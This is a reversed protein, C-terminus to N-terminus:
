SLVLGIDLLNTHTPGTMVLGGFKKFFSNSDNNKLYSIIVDDDVKHDFIAGAHKTNGDIGDTGVSGVVCDQKLKSVMNLVLEQNRGGKGNGHVVVTTEGGFVLCSKKGTKHKRLIKAAALGVDGEVRQCISTSYGLSKAKKVMVGLCDSNTAIIQNPIKPRKPTEDIKGQAGNQLLRLASKPIKKGLGYKSLIKLCDSFTSKDYYTIGSGISGLDNSVVDSMVYSIADCRLHDLIKGGKIGSLHKRIANIESISAGSGILADNVKIKQSLSIGYPACVLASAGGSVLFVVLDNQGANQLLTIIKKAAVASNRNPTPHGARIIQFKKNYFVSDYNKPIVIIGGDAHIIRHVSKAMTDAAKGMAVLWVKGYRSPRYSKSDCILLDKKIFKGVFKSPLASDLGARIIKMADSRGLPISHQDKRILNAGNCVFITSLTIQEKDM